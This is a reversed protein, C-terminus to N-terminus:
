RSEVSDTLRRTLIERAPRRLLAQGVLWWAGTIGITLGASRWLEGPVAMREIWVFPFVNRVPEPSLFAVTGLAVVMVVQRIWPVLRAPDYTLALGTTLLHTFAVLVVVSLFAMAAVVGVSVTAGLLVTAVIFPVLLAPATIIVMAFARALMLHAFVRQDRATQWVTQYRFENQFASMASLACLATGVLFSARVAAQLVAPADLTRLQVLGLSLVATQITIGVIFSSTARRDVWQLWILLRLYRVSWGVM